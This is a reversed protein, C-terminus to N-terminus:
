PAPAVGDNGVMVLTTVLRSPEAPQAITLAGGFINNWYQMDMATGRNLITLRIYAVTLQGYTSDAIWAWWNLGLFLTAAM